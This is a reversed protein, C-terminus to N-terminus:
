HGFKYVFINTDNVKKGISREESRLIIFMVDLKRM